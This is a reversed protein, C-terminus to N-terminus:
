HEVDMSVELCNHSGQMSPFEVVGMYRVSEIFSAGFTGVASASRAADQKM